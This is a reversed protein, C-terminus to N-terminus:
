ADEKLTDSELLSLRLLADRAAEREAQKKSKGIGTGIVQTDLLAEAMFTKDHDAGTEQVIRYRPTIRNSAQLHVQLLSKYDDLLSDEFIRQMASSLTRRIFDQAATFGRDLYIAAILAEYADSLVSKRRSGGEMQAMEIAQDLGLQLAAEALTAESVLYAKAKALEGENADPLSHFLSECILMGLISDGLFELRENSDTHLEPTASRHRLAQRLLSRNHFAVGIRGELDEIERNSRL